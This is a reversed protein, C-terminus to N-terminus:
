VKKKLNFEIVYSFLILLLIPYVQPKLLFPEKIDIFIIFIVLIILWKYRLPNIKKYKQIKVVPYIISSLLFFVGFIGMAYVYRVYGSDSLTYPREFIGDGYLLTSFNDPFHIMNWLEQNSGTSVSGSDYINTFLELAWPLITNYFLYSYQENLLFSIKSIFITLFVLGILLYFLNKITKFSLSSLILLTGSFVFLVLGTRGIFLLALINILMLITYFFQIFFSKSENLLLFAIYAGIGQVISLSAGSTNTFGRIREIRTENINGTYPLLSDVWIKFDINVFSYLGLLSQVSIVVVLFNFVVTLFKDSDFKMYIYYLIIVIPFYFVTLRLFLSYLLSTDNSLNVSFVLGNYAFLFLLYIFYKYLVSNEKMFIYFKQVNFPVILFFLSIFIIKDVGVPLSKFLISYLYFFLVFSVIIINFFIKINILSIKM